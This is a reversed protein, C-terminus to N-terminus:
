SGLALMVVAAAVIVLVGTAVAISARLAGSRPAAARALRRASDTRLTAVPLRSRPADDGPAEIERLYRDAPDSLRLVAPGIRVVDGDRVRVEGVSQENVAVGNKSGLDQVFVGDWRRVITAHERSIEESVLRLDCTEGRGILYRRDIATLRLPPGPPVGEVLALTPAGADPSAALIDNVLRRAISATRESGRGPPAPGDFVLLIPGVAIQVGPRVARPRHPELPEGDLRTGNTSGLDELQWGAGERFLRAHLGSLSPYPLPVEIDGRRGIRIERTEDPLEIAREETPGRESPPSAPGATASALLRLRLPM